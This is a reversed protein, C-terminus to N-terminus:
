RVKQGTRLAIFSSHRAIGIAIPPYRPASRLRRTAQRQDAVAFSIITLQPLLHSSLEAGWGAIRQILKWREIDTMKTAVDTKDNAM